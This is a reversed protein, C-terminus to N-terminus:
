LLNPFIKITEWVDYEQRNVRGLKETARKIDTEIQGCTCLAENCEMSRKNHSSCRKCLWVECSEHWGISKRLNTVYQLLISRIDICSALQQWSSWFPLSDSRLASQELWSARYPQSKHLTKWAFLMFIDWLSNM